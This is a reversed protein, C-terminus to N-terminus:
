SSAVNELAPLRGRGLDARRLATERAERARYAPASSNARRNAVYDKLLKNKM